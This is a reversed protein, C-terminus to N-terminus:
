NTFSNPNETLLLEEYNQTTIYEERLDRLYILVKEKLPHNCVLKELEVHSIDNVIEFKEIKHKSIFDEVLASAM